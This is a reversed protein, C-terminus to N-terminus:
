ELVVTTVGDAVHGGLHFLLNAYRDEEVVAGDHNVDSDVDCRRLQIAVGQLVGVMPIPM